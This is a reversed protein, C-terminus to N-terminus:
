IGARGRTVEGPRRIRWRQLERAKCGDARLRGPVLVGRMPAGNGAREARPCGRVESQMKAGSGGAAPTPESAGARRIRSNTSLGHSPTSGGGRGVGGAKFPYQLTQRAIGIDVLRLSPFQDQEELLSRREIIRQQLADRFHLWLQCLQLLIVRLLEADTRSMEREPQQQKHQEDRENEKEPIGANSKEIMM